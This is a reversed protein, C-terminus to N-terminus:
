RGEQSTGGKKVSIMRDVLQFFSMPLLLENNREKKFSTATWPSVGLCMCMSVPVM